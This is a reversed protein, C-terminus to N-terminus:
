KEYEKIVNKIRSHNSGANKIKLIDGISKQIIMGGKYRIKDSNEKVIELDSKPIPPLLFLQNIDAKQEFELEDIEIVGLEFVFPMGSRPVALGYRTRSPDSIAKGQNKASLETLQGRWIKKYATNSRQSFIAHSMAEFACDGMFIKGFNSLQQPDFGCSGKTFGQNDMILALGYKRGGTAVPEINKAFGVDKYEGIESAVLIDIFDPQSVKRKRLIDM